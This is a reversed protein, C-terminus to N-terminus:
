IVIYNYMILCIFNVYFNCLKYSRFLVVYIM